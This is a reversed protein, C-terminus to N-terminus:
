ATMQLPRVTVTDLPGPGVATCLIPYNQSGLAEGVLKLSDGWISALGFIGHSCRAHHWSWGLWSVMVVGVMLGHSCRAHHWTWGLWSAMVVGVM